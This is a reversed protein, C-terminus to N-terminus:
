LGLALRQAAETRSVRWNEWLMASVASRLNM